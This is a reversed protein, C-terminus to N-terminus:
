QPPSTVERAWLSLRECAPHLHPPLELHPQDPPVLLQSDWLEAAEVQSIVGQLLPNLLWSPLLSYTLSHPNM